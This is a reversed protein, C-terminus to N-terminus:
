GSELKVIKKLRWNVNNAWLLMLKIPEILWTRYPLWFIHSEYRKGPLEADVWGLGVGQSSTTKLRRQQMSSYNYRVPHGTTANWQNIPARAVILPSARPYFSLSLAKYSRWNKPKTFNRAACAHRFTYPIGKERIM